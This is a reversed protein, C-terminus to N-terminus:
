AKSHQLMSDQLQVAAMSAVVEHSLKVIFTERSICPHVAKLSSQYFFLLLDGARALRLAVPRFLRNEERGHRERHL